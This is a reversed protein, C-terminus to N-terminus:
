GQVGAAATLADAIISRKIADSLEIEAPTSAPVEFVGGVPYGVWAAPNLHDQPVLGAIKALTIGDGGEILWREFDPDTACDPCSQGDAAILGTATRCDGCIHQGCIHAMATCDGCWGFILADTATGTGCNFCRVLPSYALRIADIHKCTIPTTRTFAYSPCSCVWISGNVSVLYPAVGPTSPTVAWLAGPVAETHLIADNMAGVEGVTEFVVAMTRSTKRYTLPM